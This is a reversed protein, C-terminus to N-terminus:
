VAYAAYYTQYTTECQKRRELRKQTAEFEDRIDNYAMIIDLADTAGGIDDLHYTQEMMWFKKLLENQNDQLDPFMKVLQRITAHVRDRPIKKTM